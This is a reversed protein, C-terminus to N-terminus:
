GSRLSRRDEDPLQGMRTLAPDSRESIESPTGDSVKPYWPEVPQLGTGRAAISDAIGVQFRSENSYLKSRKRSGYGAARQAIASELFSQYKWREGRRPPSDRMKRAIVAHREVASSHQVSQQSKVGRSLGAAVERGAGALHIKPPWRGAPRAWAAAPDVSRGAAPRRRPSPKGTARNSSCAPSATSSRRSSAASARASSRCAAPWRRSRPSASDKPAARRDIVGPNVFLDSEALLEAVHAPPRPRRHFHIRSQRPSGAILSEIPPRCRATAPSSSTPTPGAPSSRTPARRRSRAHGESRDDPRRRHDVTADAPIGLATRSAPGRPLTGFLTDDYGQYIVQGRCRYGMQRRRRYRTNATSCCATPARGAHPSAPPQAQAQALPRHARLPKRRFFNALSAIFAPEVWHAHILDCDRRQEFLPPSCRRSSAPSRGSPGPSTRVNDPIGNGYALVQRGPISPTHSVPPDRRRQCDGPVARRPPAPRCRAGRYERPPRPEAGPRGRVRSDRRRTRASLHHHRLLRATQPM